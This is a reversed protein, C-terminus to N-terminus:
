QCSVLTGKEEETILGQEVWSEMLQAVARQYQGKNKFEQAELQSLQDAMSNGGGTNKNEIDTNCEGTSITEEINSQPTTDEADEVGDNDDDSDCLDGVGDGDYDSQDPNSILPCNDNENIVGDEDSDSSIPTCFQVQYLMLTYPDYYPLSGNNTIVVSKIDQGEVVIEMCGSGDTERNSPYTNMDIVNGDGNTGDYATITISEGSYGDALISVSEVEQSFQLTFSPNPEGELWGSQSTIGGAMGNCGGMRGIYTAGKTSNAVITVGQSAFTTPSMVDGYALGDDEIQNITITTCNEAAPDLVLNAEMSTPLDSPSSQYEENLHEKECGTLLGLAIMLGLFSKSNKM